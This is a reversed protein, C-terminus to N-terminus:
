KLLGLILRHRSSINIRPDNALLFLRSAADPFERAEKPGVITSVLCQRLVDASIHQVEELHKGVYGYKMGLVDEVINAVRLLRQKRKKKMEILRKSSIKRHSTEILRKWWIVVIDRLDRNPALIYHNLRLIDCVDDDDITRHEGAVLQRWLRSIHRLRTADMFSEDVWPMHVMDDHADVDNMTHRLGSIDRQRPVLAVAGTSSVVRDYTVCRKEDLENIYAASQERCEGSERAHLNMLETWAESSDAGQLPGPCTSKDENTSMDVPKKNPLSKDHRDKWVQYQCLDRGEQSRPRKM